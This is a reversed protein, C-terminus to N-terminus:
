TECRGRWIRPLLATVALAGIALIVASVIAATSM